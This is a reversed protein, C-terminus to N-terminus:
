VFRITWAQLPMRKALYEGKFDPTWIPWSNGFPPNKLKPFEELSINQECPTLTVEEEGCLVDLMAYLMDAPGIKTGGVDISEPLFTQLDIKKAAERIDDAKLKTVEKIAYPEDLFGFVRRAAFLKDGNLFSAAAQFIDSVCLSVPTNIPYLKEKMADRIAPIDERKVFRTIKSKEDELEKFTRFRFRDDAKLTRIFHRIEDLLLKQEEPSRDPSPEWEGFEHKNEGKYNIVDWTITKKIMNPHCSLVWNKGKALMDYFEPSHYASGPEKYDEHKFVCYEFSAYYQLQIQNCFSTMRRDRPMAYSDGYIHTGMDAGAYFWVYSFENGPPIAVIPKDVGTAAKIYGNSESEMRFVKNYAEYFDEIDTYECLTPHVSHRFSHTGIEHYKLADLVDTRGWAVLQKALLGVLCFCAKVGEERFLNAIELIGDASKEDTFDETDLILYLDTM